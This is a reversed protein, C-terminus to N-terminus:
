TAEVVGLVPCETLRSNPHLSTESARQPPASKISSTFTLRGQFCSRQRAKRRKPFLLGSIRIVSMSNGSINGRSGGMPGASALGAM